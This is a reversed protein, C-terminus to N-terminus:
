WQAVGQGPHPHKQGGIYKVSTLQLYKSKSDLVASSYFSINSHQHKDLPELAQKGDGIM